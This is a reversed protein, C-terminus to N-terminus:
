AIHPLEHDPKLLYRGWFLNLVVPEDADILAAVSLEAGMYTGALLLRRDSRAGYGIMLRDGARHSRARATRQPGFHLSSHKRGKVAAARIQLHRECPDNNGLKSLTTGKKQKLFYM